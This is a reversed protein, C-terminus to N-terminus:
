CCPWSPSFPSPPGGASVRSSCAVWPLDSHPGSPSMTGFLGMATGLRDKAVTDRVISLPLAMLIAGGIGQVARGAILTGFTPAAACLVSSLTFVGLGAILVRHHGYIDGLWGVTVITVTVSILYAVAVWQVGQISASFAAALTPLAVSAISIGLSALLTAGALATLAPWAPRTKIDAPHDNATMTM